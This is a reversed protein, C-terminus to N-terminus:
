LYCLQTYHVTELILAEGAAVSPLFYISTNYIPQVVPLPTSKLWKDRHIYGAAISDSSPGQKTTTATSTTTSSM